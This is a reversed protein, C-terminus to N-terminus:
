YAEIIGKKHNESPNLKLYYIYSDVIVHFVNVPSKKNVSNLKFLPPRLHVFSKKQLSFPIRLPVSPYLM